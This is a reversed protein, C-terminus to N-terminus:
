HRRPLREAGPAATGPRRLEFDDRRLHTGPVQALVADRVARVRREFFPVVAEGLWVAVIPEDDRRDDGIRLIQCPRVRGGVMEALNWVLLAPVRRGAARVLCTSRIEGTLSRGMRLNRM